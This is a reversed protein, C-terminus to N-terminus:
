FLSGQPSPTRRRRRSTLHATPDPTGLRGVIRRAWDADIEMAITRRGTAISAVATSGSGAFCDLVIDGPYTSAEIAHKLMDQPKEAPHKGDYPRVSPFNWVDTFEQDGSMNFPRVVDEYAPMEPIRGTQELADAMKRYQERSPINRGTEWNSIAGGHNVEGYEGTLETLRHGSIGAAARVERLFQGLTSRRGRSISRAQDDTAQELFLIRESHPYWRRLSEKSMKGKWGDYGPENPKTWTIHNLPQLFESLMVELRASMQTACFLYLAGNPRLIRRMQAGYARMWAIYEDDEAFAKDGYINAKKTSHYPPDTLVLSVSADPVAYLLALSDGCAVAFRKSSSVVASGLARVIAGFMRGRNADVDASRRDAGHAGESAIAEATEVMSRRGNCRGLSDVPVSRVNRTPKRDVPLACSLGGARFVLRGSSKEHLAPRWKLSAVSVGPEGYSTARIGRM